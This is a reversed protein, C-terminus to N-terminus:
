RTFFYVKTDKSEGWGAARADAAAEHALVSAVAADIKRAVDPKALMYRGDRRPAIRANGVHQTTVPCGDHTLRKSGLDSVFRETAAHMPVPRYTPWKIVREDGLQAAWEEIETEWYPPDCYMRNVDFRDFLAFVAETVDGKRIRGETLSPDWITGGSGWRPTFLRGAFTEAKIVTFDSVESGDFSLCVQTGPDPEPLWRM